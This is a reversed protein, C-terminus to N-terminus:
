ITTLSGKQYLHNVIKTLRYNSLKYDSPLLLYLLRLQFSLFPDQLAVGQFHRQQLRAVM